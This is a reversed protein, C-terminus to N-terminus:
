AAAALEGISGRLITVTSGAVEAAARLTFTGGVDGTSITGELTFPLPTAGGGTPATSATNYASGVGFAATSGTMAIQAAFSMWVPAAPGNVALSLGTTSVASTYGGVFRFKYHSNPALEFSLGAVDVLATGTITQGATTRRITQAGIVAQRQQALLADVQAQTVADLQAQTPQVGLAATDWFTIVPGTGTDYVAFDRLPEALPYLVQIAQAITVM